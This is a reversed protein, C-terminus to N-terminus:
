NKRKKAAQRTQPPAYIPALAAKMFPHNDLRRQEAADFAADKKRCSAKTQEVISQAKREIEGCSRGRLGAARAEITRVCGMWIARHTEEHKRVFTSFQRWLRRDNASLSAENDLRPLLILFSVSLGGVSCGKASRVIKPKSINISTFAHHRRGNVRRLRKLLSAFIGTTSGGSVGYYSYKTTFAPASQASEPGPATIMIVAGVALGVISRM